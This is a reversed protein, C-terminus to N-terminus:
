PDLDPQNRVNDAGQTSNLTQEYYQAYNELWTLAFGDDARRRGCPHDSPLPRAAAHTPQLGM